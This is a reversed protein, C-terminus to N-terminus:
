PGIPEVGMGFRWSQLLTGAERLVYEAYVKSEVMGLLLGQIAKKVKCDVVGKSPHYHM